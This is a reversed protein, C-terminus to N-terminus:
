MAGGERSPKKQNVNQKRQAHTSYGGATIGAGGGLPQPRNRDAPTPEDASPLVTRAL